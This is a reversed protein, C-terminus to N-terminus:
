LTIWRNVTGQARKGEFEEPTLYGPVSHIRKKQYVEEVFEGIREGADRFGEHESLEAAEEVTTRIVRATYGNQDPRRKGAMSIKVGHRRLPEVYEEAAYQVGQDSRPIEPVGKGLAMELAELALRQDVFRSLAWGRM